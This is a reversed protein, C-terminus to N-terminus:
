QTKLVKITDSRDGTKVRLFYVGPILDETPLSITQARGISQKTLVIRGRLDYLNITVANEDTAYPIKIDLQQTFPNPSASLKMTGADDLLDSESRSNSEGPGSFGSKVNGPVMKEIPFGLEENSGSGDRRYLRGFPNLATPSAVTLRAIQRIGFFVDVYQGEPDQAFNFEQLTYNPDLTNPMLYTIGGNENLMFNIQKSIDSANKINFYTYPSLAWTYNCSAPVGSGVTCNVVWSSMGQPATYGGAILDVIITDYNDSNTGSESQVGNGDISWITSYYTVGPSLGNITYGTASYVIGTVDSVVNGSVFEKTVIHFNASGPVDPWQVNAWTTGVQTVNLYAPPDISLLASSSKFNSMSPNAGQTSDMSPLCCFALFALVSITKFHM